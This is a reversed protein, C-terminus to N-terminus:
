FWKFGRKKYIFQKLNLYVPMREHKESWSGTSNWYSGGCYLREMKYLMLLLAKEDLGEGTFKNSVEGVFWRGSSPMGDTELFARLYRQQCRKCTEITFEWATTELLDAREFNKYNGDFCNHQTM